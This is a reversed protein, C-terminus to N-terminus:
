FYFPKLFYLKICGLFENNDFKMTCLLSVSFSKRNGEGGSLSGLEIFALIYKNEVGLNISIWMAFFLITVSTM